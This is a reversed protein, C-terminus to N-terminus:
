LKSPPWSGRRGYFFGLHYRAFFFFLIHKIKGFPMWIFLISMILYYPIAFSPYWMYLVTFIQMLTTIINSFYDDFSSFDRLDKNVIRKTLIIFGCHFSILTFIPIITHVIKVVEYPNDSPFLGLINAIFLWVFSLLSIFTGIHFIIGATYTPLHLYASEKNSPLMATTCSYCVGKCVSGAPKSLDKVSGLRILHVFKCIFTVKCFVLSILATWLYWTM